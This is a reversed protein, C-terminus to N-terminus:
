CSLTQTISTVKANLDLLPAYYASTADQTMGNGLRFTKSPEGITTADPLLMEESDPLWTTRMRTSSVTESIMSHSSRAADSPM